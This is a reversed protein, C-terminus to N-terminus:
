HWVLHANPNRRQKRRRECTRTEVATCGQHLRAGNVGASSNPSYLTNPSRRFAEQLVNGTNRQFSFHQETGGGTSFTSSCFNAIIQSYNLFPLLFVQSHGHVVRQRPVLSRQSKVSDFVASSSQTSAVTGPKPLDQLRQHIRM